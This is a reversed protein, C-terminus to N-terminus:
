LDDKLVSYDSIVISFVKGGKNVLLKVECDSLDAPLAFLSKDIEYDSYESKSTQVKKNGPIDQISCGIPIGFYTNLGKKTSEDILKQMALKYQKQEIANIDFELIEIKTKLEDIGKAKLRAQSTRGRNIFNNYVIKQKDLTAKLEILDKRKDLLDDATYCSNTVLLVLMAAYISRM